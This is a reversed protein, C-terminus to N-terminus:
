MELLDGCRSVVDAVIFVKDHGAPQKGHCHESFMIFLNIVHHCHDFEM